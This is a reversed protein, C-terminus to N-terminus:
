GSPRRIWDRLDRVPVPLRLFEAQIAGAFSGYSGMHLVLLPGPSTAVRMWDRHDPEIAAVKRVGRTGLFEEISDTTELSGCRAISHEIPDPLAWRPDRWYLVPANAPDPSDEAQLGAERAEREIDQILAPLEIVLRDPERWSRAESRPLPRVDALGAWDFGLAVALNHATDIRRPMDGPERPQRGLCINHYDRLPAAVSEPLRFRDCTEQAIQGETMGLGRCVAETPSDGKHADDGLVSESEDGLTQLALLLPLDHVLGSLYAGARLSTPAIREALIATALCHRWLERAARSPAAISGVGAKPLSEVMEIVADIGTSRLAEDILGVPSAGRYLVSNALGLIRAALVPDRRVAAELQALGVTFSSALDLVTGVPDPLAIPEQTRLRRVRSALRRRKEETERQIDFQSPPLSSPPNSSSAFRSGGVTSDPTSPQAPISSRPATSPRAPQSTPTAVPRERLVAPPPPPLAPSDSRLRMEIRAVLEDMSFAAKV